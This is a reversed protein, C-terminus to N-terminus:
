EGQWFYYKGFKWNALENTLGFTKAELQLGGTLYCDNFELYPAELVLEGEGHVEIYVKGTASLIDPDLIQARVGVNVESYVDIPVSLKYCPLAGILIDLNSKLGIKFDGVLYFGINPIPPWISVNLGTVKLYGDVSGTLKGYAQPTILSVDDSGSPNQDCCDMHLAIGINADWDFKPKPFKETIDEFMDLADKFSEFKTGGFAQFFRIFDCFEKVKTFNKPYKRLKKADVSFDFWDGSSVYIQGTQHFVKKDGDELDIYFHIDEDGFDNIGVKRDDEVIKIENEYGEPATTFEFDSLLVEEEKQYCGKLTKVDILEVESHVNLVAYERQYGFKSVRTVEVIYQGEAKNFTLTAQQENQNSLTYVAGDPASIIHWFFACDPSPDKTGLIRSKSPDPDERTYLVGIEKGAFGNMIVDQASVPFVVLGALLVFLYRFLKSNM